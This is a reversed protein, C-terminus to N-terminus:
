RNIDIIICNTKDKGNYNENIYIVNGARLRKIHNFNKSLKIYIEKM